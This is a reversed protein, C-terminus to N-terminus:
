QAVKQSWSSASANNLVEGRENPRLALFTAEELSRVVCRVKSAGGTKVQTRSLNKWGWRAAEEGNLGTVFPRVAGRKHELGNVRLEGLLLKEFADRTMAIVEPKVGELARRFTEDVDTEGADLLEERGSAWKPADMLDLVNGDALVESGRARYYARLSHVMADIPTSREFWRGYLEARLVEPMKGGNTIVMIRRDDASIPLADPRNTALLFATYVRAEYPRQYKEDIRVRTQAPDVMDKLREYAQVKDNFRTSYKVESCFAWLAREMWGNRQNSDFLHASSINAAYGGFVEGLVAMLTSRGAGQTGAAVMLVGAGRFRPNVMKHAVYREFWEREREDPILHTM